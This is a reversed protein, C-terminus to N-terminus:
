EKVPQVYRSFVQSNGKIEMPSTGPFYLVKFIIVLTSLLAM